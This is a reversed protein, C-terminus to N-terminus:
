LFSTFLEIFQEVREHSLIFAYSLAFSKLFLSLIMEVILEHKISIVDYVDHGLAWTIVFAPWIMTATILNAIGVRSRMIPINRISFTWMNWVVILCYISGQVGLLIKLWMIYTFSALTGCICFATTLVILPTTQQSTFHSTLAIQLIMLPSCISWEVYRLFKITRGKILLTDMHVAQLLYCFSNILCIIGHIAIAKHSNCHIFSGKYLSFLGMLNYWIVVLFGMMRSIEM